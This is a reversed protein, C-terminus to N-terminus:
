LSEGGAVCTSQSVEGGAVGVCVCGCLGAMLNVTCVPVSSETPLSCVQMLRGGSGGGGGGCISVILVGVRVSVQPCTSPHPPPPSM